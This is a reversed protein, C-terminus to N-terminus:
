LSASYVGEKVRAGKAQGDIREGLWGSHPYLEGRRPSDELLIDFETAFRVNARTNTQSNGKNLSLVQKSAQEDRSKRRVEVREEGSEIQAKTELQFPENIWTLPSVDFM